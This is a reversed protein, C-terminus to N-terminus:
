PFTERKLKHALVDFARLKATNPDTFTHKGLTGDIRLRYRGRGWPVLVVHHDHYDIWQNGKASKRWSKLKAFNLRKQAHNRLDTEKAAINPDDCLKHACHIGVTLQQKTTPHKLYHLFRVNEKTCYQCCATRTPGKSELLLDKVGLWEWGKSPIKTTDGADAM